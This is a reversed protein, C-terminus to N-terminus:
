SKELESFFLISKRIQKMKAVPETIVIRDHKKMIKRENDYIRIIIEGHKMSWPIAKIIVRFSKTKKTIGQRVKIAENKMMLISYITKMLNNVNEISKFVRNCLLYEKMLTVM